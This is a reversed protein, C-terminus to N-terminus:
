LEIIQEIVFGRSPPYKREMIRRADNLDRAEVEIYHLDAWDNTYMDHRQKKAVLNRVDRNYIMAEFLM